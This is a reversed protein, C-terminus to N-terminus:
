EDWVRRLKEARDDFTAKEFERRAKRDQEWAAEEEPTMDLPEIRDMLALHRAIGEADTPWDAENLGFMGKASMPEVMVETGDPWELPDSFLIQGNKVMGKIANMNNNRLRPHSSRM